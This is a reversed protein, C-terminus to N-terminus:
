IPYLDGTIKKVEELSNAGNNVANKIMGNTVKLCNCVVKDSDM